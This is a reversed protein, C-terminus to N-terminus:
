VSTISDRERAQARREEDEILDLLSIRLSRLIVDATGASLSRAGKLVNHMHPQSIGALRALSRESMEGNRVRNRIVAILRAHLIEFYMTLPRDQGIGGPFLPPETVSIIGSDQFLEIKKHTEYLNLLDNM